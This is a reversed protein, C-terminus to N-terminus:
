GGWSPETAKSLADQKEKTDAWASSQLMSVLRGYKRGLQNVDGKAKSVEGSLRSYEMAMVWIRAILAGLLTCGLSLLAIDPTSM